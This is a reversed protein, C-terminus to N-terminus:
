KTDIQLSRFIRQQALSHEVSGEWDGKVGRDSGGHCNSCLAPAHGAASKYQGVVCAALRRIEAIISLDDSFALNNFEGIEEDWTRKKKGIGHAASPAVRGPTAIRAVGSVM